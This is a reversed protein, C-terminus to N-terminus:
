FTGPMYPLHSDHLIIRLNGQDDKRYVFSYEVKTEVGGKIMFYNGMTIAINGEIKIGQNEFRIDTWCNLAFGNDENFNTNGGVFYSLAAEKNLRFQKESALTPKFLVDGMSFAYLKDLFLEACSLYDKKELFQKGIDIVGIAWKEQAEIVEKETIIQSQM